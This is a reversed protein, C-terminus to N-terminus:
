LSKIPARWRQIGLLRAITLMWVSSADSSSCNKSYQLWNSLLDRLHLIEDDKPIQVYGRDLLAEKLEELTLCDLGEKRFLEDEILIANTEGKIAKSLRLVRLPSIGWFQCLRRM